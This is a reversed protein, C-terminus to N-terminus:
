FYYNVPNTVTDPKLVAFTPFKERLIEYLLEITFQESEYHGIDAIVLRDNADFFEHYKTDATIFFDAGAALAKSILFSGAGGCVAVRKVQANRLPSHRIMKLRFEKKLISLLESEDVPGPLEGILGSGIDKADNSLDVIDYAVEEYPHNALLAQIVPNRLHRPFIVEIKNEKEEHREGKEGVFPNTAEGGKFTGIGQSGFSTESYNGINGAGAEFLATRVKETHEQPVFTYLKKLSSTSPSLPSTNILGLKQAIKGNVGNLVNDLNTHIAYIAIDHKIAAIIAKGTYNKDSIKKLGQFILPHHAVVLNTKKQFAEEVVSKTVDMALLIGSCEWDHRGVILGANDYNEQYETPAYNELVSLIDAIKM